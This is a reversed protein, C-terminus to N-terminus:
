GGFLPPSGVCVVELAGNLQKAIHRPANCCQAFSRMDLSSDLWPEDFKAIGDLACEGAELDTEADPAEQELAAPCPGCARCRRDARGVSAEDRQLSLLSEVVSRQPCASPPAVLGERLPLTLGSRRHSLRM